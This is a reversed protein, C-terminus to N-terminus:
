CNKDRVAQPCSVTQTYSIPVHFLVASKAQVEVSEVRRLEKLVPVKLENLGSVCFCHDPLLVSMDTQLRPRLQKQLDIFRRGKTM